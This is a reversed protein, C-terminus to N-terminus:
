ALGPKNWIKNEFTLCQFLVVVNPTTNALWSLWDLSPKFSSFFKRDKLFQFIKQGLIDNMRRVEEYVRFAVRRFNSLNLALSWGVLNRSKESYKGDFGSPTLSCHVCGQIKDGTHVYYYRCTLLQRPTSIPFTVTPPHIATVSSLSPANIVSYNQPLQTISGNIIVSRHRM